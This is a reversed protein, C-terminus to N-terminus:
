DLYEFTWGEHSKQHGRLVDRISRMSLERHHKILERRNIYDEFYRDSIRIMRVTRCDRTRTTMEENNENLTIFKCNEKSYLKRYTVSNIDKDLHWVNKDKNNKWSDYNELHQIDECFNQFNHWREDVDTGIYKPRKSQTIPDYCRKMMNEWLSYEKTKKKNISCTYNGQGMFGVNYINPKCPNKVEGHKIHGGDAKVLTGDEFECLYYTKYNTKSLKGKIKFKGFNNSDWESGEYFIESTNEVIDFDELTYKGDKM